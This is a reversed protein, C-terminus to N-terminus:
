TAGTDPNRQPLFQAPGGMRKFVGVIVPSLLVRTLEGRLSKQVHPKQTTSIMLYADKM